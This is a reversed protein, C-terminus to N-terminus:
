GELYSQGSSHCTASLNVDNTTFIANASNVQWQEPRVFPPSKLTTEADVQTQTYTHRCHLITNPIVFKTMLLLMHTLSNTDIHHQTVMVVTEGNSMCTIYIQQKKRDRVTHDCTHNTCFGLIHINHIATNRRTTLIYIQASYGAICCMNHKICRMM